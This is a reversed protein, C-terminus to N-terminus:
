KKGHESAYHSVIHNLLSNAENKTAFYQRFMDNLLIHPVTKSRLRHMICMQHLCM